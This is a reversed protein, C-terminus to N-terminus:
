INCWRCTHQKQRKEVMRAKYLSYEDVKEQAEAVKLLKNDDIVNSHHHPIYPHQPERVQYFKARLEGEQNLKDIQKAVQLKARGTILRQKSGELHQLFEKDLAQQEKQIDVLAKCMKDFLAACSTIVLLQANLARFRTVEATVLPDSVQNLAQALDTNFTPDQILIDLDRNNYLSGKVNNSPNLIAPRFHVPRGKGKTGLLFPKGNCEQYQLYPLTVIQDGIIIQFSPHGPVDALCFWLPGLYTADPSLPLDFDVTTGGSEENCLILQLMGEPAEPSPTSKPLPTDDTSNGNTVRGQSHTQTAGIFLFPGDDEPQYLHYNYSKSNSPYALSPLLPPSPLHSAMPSPESATPTTGMTARKIAMPEEQYFEKILEPAHINAHPEWSNHAPTYGKWQVLFQLRCGRGHRRLRLIKEVKYEPEGEVLKPLPEMFNAGHEETEQYPSLLASHFTNHIKWAPPLELRYTTPGLVKTVKFPGFRRPRLKTTPHSM